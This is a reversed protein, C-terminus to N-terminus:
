QSAGGGGGGRMVKWADVIDKCVGSGMHVGAGSGRGVCAYVCFFWRWSSVLVILCGFSLM